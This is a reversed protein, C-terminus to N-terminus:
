PNAVAGAIGRAGAHGTASRAIGGVANVPNLAEQLQKRRMEEAALDLGQLRYLLKISKETQAMLGACDADSLAHEICLQRSKARIAEPDIPEDEDNADLLSDM